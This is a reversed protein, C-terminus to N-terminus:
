IKRFTFMKKVCYFLTKLFMVNKDLQIIKNYNKKFGSFNTHDLLKKMNM